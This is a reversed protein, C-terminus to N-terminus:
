DFISLQDMTVCNEQKESSTEIKGKPSVTYNTPECYDNVLDNLWNFPMKYWSPNPDPHKICFLQYNGPNIGHLIGISIDKFKDASIWVCTSEPLSYYVEKYNILFTALTKKKFLSHISYFDDGPAKTGQQNIQLNETSDSSDEDRSSTETAETNTEDTEDKKDSQKPSCSMIFILVIGIGYFFLRDKIM